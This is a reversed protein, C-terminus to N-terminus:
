RVWGFVTSPPPPPRRLRLRMLHEGCLTITAILSFALFLSLKMITSLKYGM